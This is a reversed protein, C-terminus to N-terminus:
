LYKACYNRAVDGVSKRTVEWYLFNSIDRGTKLDAESRAVLTYMEM